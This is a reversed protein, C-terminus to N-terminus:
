PTPPGGAARARLLERYRSIAQQNVKVTAAQTLERMHGPTSVGVAIRHVPPLCFAIRFAAQMRTAEQGNMLFPATSLTRWIPDTADGAFPSMGWRASAPLALLSALHEAAKLIEPSVLLGARTMLAAPALRSAPADELLRVLPRPNWTAIGWSRCLGEETAAALAACADFLRTRGDVSTLNKLSREPNHLFVLDPMQELDNTARRVAAHLKEPALTHETTGNGPFFGVKTSIAFEPLLDRAAAALARHSTFAQYNYSTDLARVGM